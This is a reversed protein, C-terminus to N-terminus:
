EAKKQAVKEIWIIAFVAITTVVVAYSLMAVITDPDGFIHM